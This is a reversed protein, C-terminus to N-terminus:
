MRRSYRRRKSKRIRKRSNRKKTKRKGGQQKWAKDGASQAVQQAGISIMEANLDQLKSGGPYPVNLPQVVIAGAGGYLSHYRRRKAGGQTAKLLMSMKANSAAINANAVAMPSGNEAGLPPPAVSNIPMGTIPNM